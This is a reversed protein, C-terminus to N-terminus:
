IESKYLTAYYGAIDDWIIRPAIEEEGIIPVIYTSDTYPEGVGITMGYYKVTGDITMSPTWEFRLPFDSPHLNTISINKYYLDNYTDSTLEYGSHSETKKLTNSSNYVKLTHSYTIECLTDPLVGTYFVISADVRWTSIGSETLKTGTLIHNNYGSISNSGASLTSSSLDFDFICTVISGDQIMTITKEIGGNSIVKIIGTREFGINELIDIYISGDLGDVSSCRINYMFDSPNSTVNISWPINTIINFGIDTSANKTAYYLSPEVELSGGYMFKVDSLRTWGNKSLKMYYAYIDSLSLGTIKVCGSSDINEFILPRLESSDINYTNGNFPSKYKFVYLSGKVDEDYGNTFDELNWYISAELTPSVLATFSEPSSNFNPNFLSNANIEYNTLVTGLPTNQSFSNLESKNQRLLSVDFILNVNRLNGDSDLNGIRFTNTSIERIIAIATNNNDGSTYVTFPNFGEHNINTYEIRTFNYPYIKYITSPIQTYDISGGTTYVNDIIYKPSSNYNFYREFGQASSIGLPEFFGGLNIDAFKYTFDNNEADIEYCKGNSDFFLDGTKYVRGGPLSESTGKWLIYNNTIKQKIANSELVPDYDTFYISLGQEGDEGREGKSGFGPKGPAYQFYNSM